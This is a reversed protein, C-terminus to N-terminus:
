HGTAPDISFQYHAVETTVPTVAAVVLVAHEVEAGLGALSIKGQQQADLEMERVRVKEGFEILQVIFRQDMLNNLRVFGEAAWDGETECDDYYGLEPVSIDDVVFGPLNVAEDTVYEFRVLIKKGVYPSLDISEELWIPEEGEGSTGTYGYGFNNGVPNEATTYQGALLSWTKGGDTSVEVYAYDWDKEIDYWLWYKLTAKDLGRLDLERTLRTDIADGRGSWWQGSGSHSENPVLRVETKGKFAVTADSGPLRIDFYDAAYQHVDGSYEGYETITESTNVQVAIDPYSYRGGEENDFYNAIVWDGFVAEFDAEYGRHSLYDDIGKAGDAQQGIVEGLAGEGGYHEALYNMFLYAAGYHAGNESPEYGWSTLQTDPSSTFEKIFDSQYGCLEVALESAGENLWCEENADARWHVLHQLEHALIAFYARSGVSVADINVYIMERQNSYPYVARPYEDYASFYGGVGPIRANIITLHPDNDVGPTWEKGFFGTVTSYIHDEFEQASREIDHQSVSAGEEVYMYAHSTICRLTAKISFRQYTDMNILWFERVDGVEYGISTPSVVSPIPELSGSRLRAALEFPDVDIPELALQLPSPTPTRTPTEEREPTPSCFVAFSLVLLAGLLYLRRM